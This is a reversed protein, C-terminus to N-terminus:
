SWTGDRVPRRDAPRFLDQADRALALASELEAPDVDLALAVARTVSYALRVSLVHRLAVEFTMGSQGALAGAAAHATLLPSLAM